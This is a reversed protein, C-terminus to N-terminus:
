QWCCEPGSNWALYATNHYGDFAWWFESGIWGNGVARLAPQVWVDGDPTEPLGYYHFHVYNYAYYEWCPYEPHSYWEGNQQYSWWWPQAWVLWDHSTETWYICDYDYWIKMKQNASYQIHGDEGHGNIFAIWHDSECCVM